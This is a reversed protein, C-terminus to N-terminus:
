RHARRHAAPGGPDGPARQARLAPLDRRRVPRPDARDRGAETRDRADRDRRPRDHPGGAPHVRARLRPLLPGGAPRGDRAVDAPGDAPPRLLRAGAAAPPQLAARAPRVRDRALRPRRDHAAPLHLGVAGARGRRDRDRDDGTRQSRALAPDLEHHKAHDAGRQIAEVALGTLYPILVTMVMAICALAASVAVGRRYPRLFGLLRYFTTMTTCDVIIARDRRDRGYDPHTGSGGDDSGDLPM